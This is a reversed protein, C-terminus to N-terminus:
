LLRRDRSSCQHPISSPVPYGLSLGELSTSQIMRLENEWRSSPKALTDIAMPISAVSHVVKPSSIGLRRTADRDLSMPSMGSLTRCMAMAIPVAQPTTCPKQKMQRTVQSIHTLKHMFTTLMVHSPQSPNSAVTLLRNLRQTAVSVRRSTEFRRGPKV